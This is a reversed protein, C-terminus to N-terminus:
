QDSSGALQDPLFWSPPVGFVKAISYVMDIRPSMEGRAMRYFTNSGLTRVDDAGAYNKLFEWLKKTNMKMLRGTSPDRVSINEYCEELRAVFFETAPGTFPPPNDRPPNPGKVLEWM